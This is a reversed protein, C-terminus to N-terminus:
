MDILHIPTRAHTAEIDSTQATKVGAIIEPVPRANTVTSPKKTTHVVSVVTM